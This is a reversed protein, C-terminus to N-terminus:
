WTEGMRKEGVERKKGVEEEEGVEKGEGVTKDTEEEFKVIWQVLQEERSHFGRGEDM